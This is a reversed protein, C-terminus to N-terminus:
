QLTIIERIQKVYDQYGAKINNEIGIIQHKPIKVKEEAKQLYWEYEMDLNGIDIVRYGVSALDYALPKATGGLALLLLKSKEIKLCAQKIQEYVLFADSNPCLVREIQNASDLLDNGVGTHTAEGEVMVVNKNRWIEKIRDFQIGVRERNQFMYYLRSFFANAYIKDPACYRMYTKRYFFLHEKWFKQSHITYVDLTEFIDPIGILINDNQCRLVDKLRDALETSYQQLKIARGEILSIEGDGFRVMSKDSQILMEITEDISYVQIKNKLIKKHYLFYKTEIFVEKIIEKVKNM